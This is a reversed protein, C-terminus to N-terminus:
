PKGAQLVRFRYPITVQENNDADHASVIAQHVGAAFATSPLDAQLFYGESSARARLNRRELKAGNPTRLTLDCNLAAPEFNLRLTLRVRRVEASLKVSPLDGDDRAPSNLNVALLDNLRENLRENGPAPSEPTVLPTPSPALQQALQQRLEQERIAQHAIETQTASLTRRLKQNEALLWGAVLLLLLTAAAFSWERPSWSGFWNAWGTKERIPAAAPPQNLKERLARAFAVEKQGEPTALFHREFKERTPADLHNRVYADILEQKVMLMQEFLSEEALYRVEFDARKEEPMEGLLYGAM